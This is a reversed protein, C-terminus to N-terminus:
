GLGRFHLVAMAVTGPAGAVVVFSM